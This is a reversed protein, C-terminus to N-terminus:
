FLQENPATAHFPVIIQWLILTATHVIDRTKGLTVINRTIQTIKAPHSPHLATVHLPVINKWSILTATNVIDRIKGLTVIDSTIQTTKVPHSPQLATIKAICSTSRSFTLNMWEMTNDWDANRQRGFKMMPVDLKPWLPNTLLNRSPGHLTNCWLPPITPAEKTLAVKACESSVTCAKMSTTGTFKSINIAILELNSM